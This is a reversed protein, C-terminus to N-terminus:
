TWDKKAVKRCISVEGEYTNLWCWYDVSQDDKTGSIVTGKKGATTADQLMTKWSVYVDNPVNEKELAKEYSGNKGECTMWSIGDLIHREVHPEKKPAKSSRNVWKQWVETQADIAQLKLIEICRTMTEPTSCPANCVKCYKAEFLQMPAPQKEPPVQAPAPPQTIPTAKQPATPTEQIVAQKNIKMPTYGSVAPTTPSLPQNLLTHPFDIAPNPGNDTEQAMWQGNYKKIIRMLDPYDAKQPPYNKWSLRLIEQGDKQYIRYQADLQLHPPLDAEIQDCVPTWPSDERLFSV